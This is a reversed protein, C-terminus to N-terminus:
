HSDPNDIIWGSARGHPASLDVTLAGPWTGSAWHSDLVPVIVAAAVALLLLKGVARHGRLNKLLASVGSHGVTATVTAM